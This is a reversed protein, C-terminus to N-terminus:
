PLSAGSHSGSRAETGTGAAAGARVVTPEESGIGAAPASNSGDGPLITVFEVASPPSPGALREQRKRLAWEALAAAAVLALGFLAPQLFLQVQNPFFAWLLVFLTVLAILAAKRRPVLGNVVAYGILIATGAGILVVLSRAIASFSLTAPPGSRLFTYRHGSDFEPGLPVVETGFWDALALVSEDTQRTWIGRHLGWRFQPVYGSPGTFLHQSQPLAIRWLTQGIVVGDGFSPAELRATGAMGIGDETGRCVITLVPPANGSRLLPIEALRGDGDAEIEAEVDRGRWQIQEPSLGPPFRISVVDPPPEEFRCEVVTRVAGDREFVSRLLLRPALHTRVEDVPKPVFRLSAREPAGAAIWQVPRDNVSSQSPLWDPGDLSVTHGPLDDVSLRTARLTGEAPAILPLTLTAAEGTGAPRRLDYQTAVFGTGRVPRGLSLEVEIADGSRGQKRELPLSEGTADTFVVHQALLVDPVMLRLTSAPEHRVEYEIRQEIRLHEGWPRVTVLATADIERELRRVAFSVERIDPPVAFITRTEEDSPERLGMLRRVDAAPAIDTGGAATLRVETNSPHYLALLTEARETEARPGIAELRPLVLAVPADDEVRPRSARVPVSFTSATSPVAIDIPPALNAERRFETIPGSRIQSVNWEPSPWDLRVERVEGRRVESLFKADLEFRDGSITLALEPRVALLPPIAKAEIVLQFPQAAFKYTSAEALSPQSMKVDLDEVGERSAPAISYGMSPRVVIQGSQSELPAGELLFGDIAILGDGPLPASLQWTLEFMGDVAESLRVTAVRGSDTLEETHSAYLRGVVEGLMYDEPLRVRVSTVKGRIATIRQTAQLQVNRGAVTVFITTFATLDTPEAAVPKPRWALDLRGGTGVWHVETADETQEVARLIGAAATVDSEPPLDLRLSTTAADAPTTLNLRSEDPRTSLPALLKLRLRHEGRGQILWVHGSERSFPQYSVNGRGEHKVEVPTAENFGLPVRVAEDRLVVVVIEADIELREDSEARGTLTVSNIGYGPGRRAALWELFDAYTTGPPLPVVSGDEPKVLGFPPPANEAARPNEGTPPTTAAPTPRAAGNEAQGLAAAPLVLLVGLVAGFAIRTRPPFTTVAAAAPPTVSAHRNSRFERRSGGRGPRGRRDYTRFRVQSLFYESM